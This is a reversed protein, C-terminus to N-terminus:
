GPRRPGAAGDGCFLELLPGNSGAEDVSSRTPTCRPRTSLMWCGGYPSTGLGCGHRGLGFGLGSWGYGGRRRERSGLRVRSLPFDQLILNKRDMGAIAEVEAGYVVM